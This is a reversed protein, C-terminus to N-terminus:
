GIKKKIHVNTFLHHNDSINVSHSISIKLSYNPSTTLPTHMNISKIAMRLLSMDSILQYLVFQIASWGDAQPELGLVYTIRSLAHTHKIKDKKALNKCHIKKM